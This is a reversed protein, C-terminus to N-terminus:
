VIKILKPEAEELKPLTINLIGDNQKAEIKTQDVNKPLKFSRKFSKYSFEVRRLSEDKQEDKQESSVTLFGEHLNIKVDEKKVGPLALEIEFAKDTEKVNAAPAQLRYEPHQFEGFLSNFLNPFVIDNNRRVITNM